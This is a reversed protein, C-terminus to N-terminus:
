HAGTKCDIVIVRDCGHGNGCPVIICVGNGRALTKIRDGAIIIVKVNVATRM